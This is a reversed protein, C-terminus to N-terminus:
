RSVELERHRILYLAAALLLDPDDQFQGLGRNCNSCLLDRPAGSAHNHDIALAKVQGRYTATEPKGCIRASM